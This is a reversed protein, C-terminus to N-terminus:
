ITGRTYHFGELINIKGRKYLTRGGTHGCKQIFGRPCPGPVHIGTGREVLIHNNKPNIIAITSRMTKDMKM